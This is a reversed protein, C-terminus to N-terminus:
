VHLAHTLEIASASSTSDPAAETGTSTTSTPYDPPLPSDSDTNGTNAPASQATGSSTSHVSSVSRRVDQGKSFINKVVDRVEPDYYVVRLKAYIHIAFLLLFVVAAFILASSMVLDSAADYYNGNQFVYAALMFLVLDVQAVLHLRLNVSFLYPQALIILMFYATSLCISTPLQSSQDIFVLLSTLFLQLCCSDSRALCEKGSAKHFM